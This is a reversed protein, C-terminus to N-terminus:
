RCHMPRLALQYFIERSSHQATTKQSERELPASGEREGQSQSYVDSEHDSESASSPHLEPREDDDNDSNPPTWDLGPPGDSDSDVNDANTCGCQRHQDFQIKDFARGKQINRNRQRCNNIMHEEFNMSPPLFGVRRFPLARVRVRRMKVGNEHDTNCGQAPPEDNSMEGDDFKTESVELESDYPGDSTPLKKDRDLTVADASSDIVLSEDVSSKEFFCHGLTATIVSRKSCFDLSVEDRGL